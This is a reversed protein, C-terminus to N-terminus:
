SLLLLQMYPTVTILLLLQNVYKLKSNERITSLTTNLGTEVLCIKM